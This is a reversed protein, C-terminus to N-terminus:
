FETETSGAMVLTANENLFTKEEKIDNCESEEDLEEISNDEGEGLINRYRDPMSSSVSYSM